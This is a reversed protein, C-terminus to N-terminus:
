DKYPELGAGAADSLEARRNSSNGWTTTGTVQAVKQKQLMDLQGLRTRLNYQNDLM